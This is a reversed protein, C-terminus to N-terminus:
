KELLKEVDIKGVKKVEKKPKKLLDEAKPVKVKPGKADFHDKSVRELKEREALKELTIKEIDKLFKDPGVLEKEMIKKELEPPKDLEVDEVKEIVDEMVREVETDDKGVEIEEHKEKKDVEEKSKESINIQKEISLNEELARGEIYGKRLLVEINEEIVYGVEVSLNIANWYGSVIDKMYREEDVDLVDKGLVEGHNYVSVLNLGIEMPEIGLKALIDAKKKSIEEGEKVLVIDRQIAVKGGEVGSPIGVQGLEGIIPGPPFSTAGKSVIIDNLAVQGPKAITKTKNKKLIKFLRFPEEKSFILAPVGRLNDSFESFGKKNVDMLARKMLRRKTMFLVIKDKLQRRIRQLQLCPVSDLNVIGIVEYEVLLRKLEEIKRVKWDTIKREM